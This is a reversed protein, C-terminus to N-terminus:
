VLLCPGFWAIAASLANCRFNKDHSPNSRFLFTQGTSGMPWPSLGKSQATWAKKAAPEPGTFLGM